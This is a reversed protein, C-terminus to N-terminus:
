PRMASARIAQGDSECTVAGDVDTRFVQAGDARLREVVAESPHGYRNHAGVSIIAIRPHAEALFEPTSSTDSGHHGVKLVDCGLPERDREMDEEEPAEADGTLLFTTKGYTLRVVISADNPPGEVEKPTPALLSLRVGDGCDLEEGREAPRYAVGHNRAEQRARGVLPEDTTQGDDMLMGVPFRDILTPAGGIHDAHPHTLLIADIARVGLHKLFPAVVLRAEDDGNEKVGGTDVLITHGGPTEIVAADGQGVDLFTVTLPRPQRRARGYFILGGNALLVAALLVYFRRSPM